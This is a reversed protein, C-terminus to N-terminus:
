KVGRVAAARTTSTPVTFVRQAHWVLSHLAHLCARLHVAASGRRLPGLASESAPEPASEGRTHWHWHCTPGPGPGPPDAAGHRRYTRTVTVTVTVTLTRTM